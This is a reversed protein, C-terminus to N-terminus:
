RVDFVGSFLCARYGSTSVGLRSQRAQGSLRPRGCRRLRWRAEARINYLSFLSLHHLWCLQKSIFVNPVTRQGTKERLYDQIADGEQLEDLRSSWLHDVVRGRSISSSSACELIKTQAEPFKSTLLNKARKCYPCWTKSFVVITNDSISNQLLRTM